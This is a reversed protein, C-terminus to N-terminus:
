FEKKYDPNLQMPVPASINKRWNQLITLLESVKGPNRKALNEKEGIDESLNYLELDNNEFYQILKWNGLRIASGPRTRFLPDQTTSDGKLYAELYVPFHWFLPREEIKGKGTLMPLLSRGDVIKEVPPEIGAVELITPYFDLNSVPMESQSDAPIKGPWRAFMPERIGGEYYSGKGSRLPWQKTIGYHGGNDSTFLIFTNQLKGSEKLKTILRGIQTDLNEIMTAYGANAQGNWGPKDEYKPLLAKVPHIPTHVAYPSYYLFFPQSGVSQLFALTKDMILNTLYYDDASPEMAVRTYPPYYSGPNGAHSGGINKDFGQTVPNDGLHWKGAHCTIYGGERLAEALTYQSDPLVTNNAIPILKRDSSQGRESTDVTYIGHRPTWQGSMLCARSPACNAASAYANTFIMGEAALADLNPTEYFESGMFGVDRWGMDDINILLINPPSTEMWKLQPWFEPGDNKQVEGRTSRGNKVITALESRYKEVLEKNEDQLNREEGIDDKLNYLQVVPLDEIRESGPKPDSWGGSGPCFIVKWDGKRYAFSGNISHHVISKRPESASKVNLAPLFSYSDEAVSDPLEKGIIDAVTAFLDTTCLLQGTKGPKVKAPWRVVFPVHHGGEFIDAKHGRFVYSPDHGKTALQNFDAEPSCGNDTTFIFVTNEAIGKQELVNMVQGVVWDVMIVFDGYPNELGSKGQFQETPLIPTHPAPLPMYLFFPQRRGANENIFQVTKQTIDPLVQEHSFDDSTLGERWWSQKGTDVTMKTPVMTPRDNEVWVYPPMDLSGNFGYFYDFGRTIPGNDVKQSFDVSDNGAEVNAWGWGLHWKGIGATKYGAEKLFGAITQRAAPILAKSYGGLVGQKLTSRWNYRGTLIGYRTPTCVSSSTHADTFMVGESALKDIFPTIIKSNENFCSVDGYGMDDALIFIINPKQAQLKTPSSSLAPLLLLILFFLPKHM